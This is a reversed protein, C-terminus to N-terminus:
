SRRISSDKIQSVALGGARGARTLDIANACCEARIAKGEASSNPKCTGALGSDDRSVDCARIGCM